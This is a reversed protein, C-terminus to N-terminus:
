KRQISRGLRMCCEVDGVAETMSTITTQEQLQVESIKLIRRRSQDETTRAAAMSVTRGSVTHMGTNTTQGLHVTISAAVREEPRVRSSITPMSSQAAPTSTARAAPVRNEQEEVGAGDLKYFEHRQERSLAVLVTALVRWHALLALSNDPVIALSPRSPCSRGEKRCMKSLWRDERESVTTDAYLMYEPINIEMEEISLSYTEDDLHDMEEFRIDNDFDTLTALETSSM